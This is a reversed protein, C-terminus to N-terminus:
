QTNQLSNAYESQLLDLMTSWFSNRPKDANTVRLININQEAM